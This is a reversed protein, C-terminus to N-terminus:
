PLLWSLCSIFLVYMYTVYQSHITVGREKRRGRGGERAAVIGRKRERQNEKEGGGRGRERM